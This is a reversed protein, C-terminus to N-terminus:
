KCLRVRVPQVTPMMPLYAPVPPTSSIIASKPLMWIVGRQWVMSPSSFPMKEDNGREAHYHRGSREPTWLWVVVDILYALGEYNTASSYRWHQPLNLYGCKITNAHIYDPKERMMAANLILEAHVGEQWFQYERDQKHAAATAAPARSKTTTLPRNNPTRHLVQFRRRM